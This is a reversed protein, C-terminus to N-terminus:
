KVVPKNSQKWATIGGTLDYVEKFGMELLINAAANSRSGAKCYLFVPKGKDLKAAKTKFDSSYYDIMVANTLHGQAYEEATRVDVLAAGKKETLAREFEQPALHKVTQAKAVPTLLLMVSLLIINRKM